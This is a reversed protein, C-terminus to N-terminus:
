FLIVIVKEDEYVINNKLVIYIVVCYMVGMDIYVFCLKKVVIKVVMSKGVVVLGDIVICIKKIM